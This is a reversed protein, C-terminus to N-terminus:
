FMFATIGREKSEKERCLFYKFRGFCTSKENPLDIPIVELFQESYFKSSFTILSFFFNSSWCPNCKPLSM